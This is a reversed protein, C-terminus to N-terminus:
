CKSLMGDGSTFNWFCHNLCHATEVLFAPGQVQLAGWGGTPPVQFPCPTPAGSGDPCYNGRGCNLRAWSSTGAPCFHGGPCQQCSTSGTASTFSGAPCLTCSSAGANSFSGKPCFTANISSLPCSSGAPCLTPIGSFCYYSAPCPVCTLQRISNDSYGGIILAGSGANLAIGIPQNFGAASGIGNLRAAVSSGALTAVYASSSSVSRIRNNLLDAFFLTGSPDSAINHPWNLTALAGVGDAWAAAGSGAFSQVTANQYIVRIRNNSRDSVYLAGLSDLAVGTPMNFAANTGIGDAFSAAGSGALTLVNGMPSMIRVRHNSTDAIYIFGTSNCVLATPNNFSAAAGLGDAWSALGSGAITSVYGSGNIVRIRHSWDAVYLLGNPCFTVAYPKTFQANTGFGDAFAQAGSGAFTSVQGTSSVRRILNNGIDAVFISGHADMALGGPRSFSATTGQGDSFSAIGSGAVTSVNWYCLPQASLGAVTCATVPYCSVNLASGGACYAGIPCILASGGSCFYGPPASCAPSPTPSTTPSVTQGSCLALLAFLVYFAM